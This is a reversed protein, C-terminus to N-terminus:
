KVQVRVGNDGGGQTVYLDARDAKLGKLNDKAVVVEVNPAATVSLPATSFVLGGLRLGDRAHVGKTLLRNNEIRATTNVSRGGAFDDYTIGALSLDPAPTQAFEIRNDEILTRVWQTSVQNNVNVSIGASQGASQVQQAPGVYLRGLRIRNGTITVTGLPYFMRAPSIPGGCIIGHSTAENSNAAADYGIRNNAIIVRTHSDSNFAFAAVGAFLASDLDCDSIELRDIHGVGDRSFSGINVASYTGPYTLPPFLSAPLSAGTIPPAHGKLKCRKVTIQGTVANSPHPLISSAYSDIECDIIRYDSTGNNIITGTRFPPYVAVPAGVPSHRVSLGRLIVRKGPAYIQFIGGVMDPPSPPPPPAPPPPTPQPQPRPQQNSNQTTFDDGKIVPRPGRLGTITLGKTVTIAVPVEFIGSGNGGTGHLVVEDGDGASNVMAQLNDGPYADLKVQVM